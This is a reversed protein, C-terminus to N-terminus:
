ESEQDFVRDYHAKIHHSMDSLRLANQGESSVIIEKGYDKQLVPRIRVAVKLRQSTVQAAPSQHV